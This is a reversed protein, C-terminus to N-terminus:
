RLTNERHSTQQTTESSLKSEPVTTTDLASSLLECHTFSLTTFSSLYIEQFPVLAVCGVFLLL